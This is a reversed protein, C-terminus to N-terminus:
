RTRSWARGCLFVLNRRPGHRVVLPATLPRKLPACCTWLPELIGNLEAGGSQRRIQQHSRGRRCSEGAVRCGAGAGSQILSEFIEASTHCSRLSAFHDSEQPACVHGWRGGVSARSSARATFRNHSLHLEELTYCKRVFRGLAGVGPEAAHTSVRASSEPPYSIRRKRVAILFQM